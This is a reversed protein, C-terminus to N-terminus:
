DHRREDLHVGLENLSAEVVADVVEGGLGEDGALLSTNHTANVLEQLSGAPQVFSELLLVGSHHLTSLQGSPLRTIKGAESTAKM